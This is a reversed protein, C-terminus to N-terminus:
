IRGNTKLAEIFKQLAVEYRHRQAPYDDDVVPVNRLIDWRKSLATLADFEGNQKDIAGM